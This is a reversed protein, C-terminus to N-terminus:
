EITETIYNCFLCRYGEVTEGRSHVFQKDIGNTKMMSLESKTPIKLCLENLCRTHTKKYRLGCSNCLQDHKMKSWSPRWCPSDSSRCSVCRRLHQQHTHQRPSTGASNNTGNHQPHNINCHDNTDDSHKYVCHTGQELNNNSKTNEKKKRYSKKAKNSKSQTKLKSKLKPQMRSSLSSTGETPTLLYDVYEGNITTPRMPSYSPSNQISSTNSTSSGSDSGTSSAISSSPSPSRSVIPQGPFSSQVFFKRYKPLTATSRIPSNCRPTTYGSSNPAIDNNNNTIKASKKINNVHHHKSNRQDIKEVLDKVVSNFIESSNQRIKTPKFIKNMNMNNNNKNKRTTTHGTKSTISLIDRNELLRKIELAKFSNTKKHGTNNNTTTINSGNNNSKMLKEKKVTQVLKESIFPTFKIFNGSNKNKSCRIKQNQEEIDIDDDTLDTIDTNNNNNNNNNYDEKDKTQIGESSPSDNPSMPPTVPTQCEWSNNSLNSFQDKPQLISSIKCTKELKLNSNSNLSFLNKPVTGEFCYNRDSQSLIEMLRKYEQYNKEKCWNILNDRWFPTPRSTDPYYHSNRQITPDPLLKLHRLSPLRPIPKTVKNTTTTITTNTTRKIINGHHNHNPLRDLLHIQPLNSISPLLTPSSIQNQNQKGNRSLNETLTFHTNSNILSDSYSSLTPSLQAKNFTPSTQPTIDSISKTKQHHRKFERNNLKKYYQLGSHVPSGPATNAKKKLLIDLTNEHNGILGKNQPFQLAPLGNSLINKTSTKHASLTPIRRPSSPLLLDDFYTKPRDIEQTSPLHNISFSKLSMASMNDM